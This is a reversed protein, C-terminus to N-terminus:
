VPVYEPIVVKGLVKEIEETSLLSLPVYVKVISSPFLPVSDHRSRTSNASVTEVGGSKAGLELSIQSPSVM